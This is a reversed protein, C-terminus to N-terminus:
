TTVVAALPEACRQRANHLFLDPHQAILTAANARAAERWVGLLPPV